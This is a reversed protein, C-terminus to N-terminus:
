LRTPPPTPPEWSTHVVRGQATLEFWVDDLGGTPLARDELPELAKGDSTPVAVRILGDRIGRLLAPVVEVREFRTAHHSRWGLEDSNLLRLIDELSELDNALSDLVFYDILLRAM